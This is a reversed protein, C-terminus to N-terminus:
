GCRYNHALRTYKGALKRHFDEEEEPLSKVIKGPIGLVLSRAPVRTGATVVAAAGIVSGQGVTAGDLITSQIGVLVADEVVCGHVVARHGMVVDAGIVAADRDGVHVVSGDQVSTRAGIVVRNVDGRLVSGPWVSSEEALTVDGILAAGPAVYADPAVTPVRDLYREFIAGPFRTRLVRLAADLDALNAPPGSARAVSEVITRSAV